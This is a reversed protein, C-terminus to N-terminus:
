SAPLQFFLLARALVEHTPFVYRLISFSPILSLTKLPLYIKVQNTLTQFMLSTTEKAMEPLSSTSTMEFIKLSKM